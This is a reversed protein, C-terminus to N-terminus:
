RRNVELEECCTHWLRICVNTCWVIFFIGLMIVKPQVRKNRRMQLCSNSFFSFDCCSESSREQKEWLSLAGHKLDTDMLSNEKHNLGSVSILRIWDTGRQSDFRPGISSKEPSSTPILDWTTKDHERAIVCVLKLQVPFSISQSIKSSKVGACCTLWNPQAANCVWGKPHRM